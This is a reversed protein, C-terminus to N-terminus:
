RFTRGSNAKQVALSFDSTLSGLQEAITRLKDHPLVVTTGESWTIGDCRLRPGRDLSVHQILELTVTYFFTTDKMHADLTNGVVHVFLYPQGGAGKWEREKRTRIGNANLTLEVESRLDAESLGYPKEPPANYRVSVHVAKLGKLSAGEPSTDFLMRATGATTSGFLFLGLIIHSFM